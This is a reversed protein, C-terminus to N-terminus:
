SSHDCHNQKAAEAKALADGTDTKHGIGIMTIPLSANM